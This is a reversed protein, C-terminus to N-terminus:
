AWDPIDWSEQDAYDRVEVSVGNDFKDGPARLYKMTSFSRMAYPGYFARTWWQKPDATDCTQQLVTVPSVDADTAVAMCLGTAQNQFVRVQTCHCHDYQSSPIDTFITRWEEYATNLCRWMVLPTGSPASRADICTGPLVSTFHYYGPPDTITANAPGALAAGATAIMTASLAMTAARRMFKGMGVEKYLNTQDSDGDSM